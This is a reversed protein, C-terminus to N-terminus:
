ASRLGYRGPLRIREAFRRRGAPLEDDLGVAVVDDISDKEVNPVLAGVQPRLVYRDEKKLTVIEINANM